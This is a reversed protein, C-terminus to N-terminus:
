LRNLPGGLTMIGAEASVAVALVVRVLAPGYPTGVAMGPLGTLDVATGWVAPAFGDVGVIGAACTGSVSVGAMPVGVSTGSSGLPGSTGDNLEGPAGFFGGSRGPTWGIASKEVVAPSCTVRACPVNM